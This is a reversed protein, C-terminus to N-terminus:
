EGEAVLGLAMNYLDRKAHGTKRAVLGAADKTSMDELADRLLSELQEAGYVRAEPPAIVLVIEGKPLGYERYYEVLETASGKRVEEYMKTLERTVAIVRDGLVREIDELSKLLRPAAEFAILSAQVGSWEQLVECRAASKPPLFGLFTFRDSPLGSLQLAMLPANAGPMSSVYIGAAAAANVLKYGPDSILPMGADSILVVVQGESVAGMLRDRVGADSHDNYPMLKGSIGYAALLKGSVRTDECAILDAAALVDLARLSIDRLNGIPTAVLYLGARFGRAKADPLLWGGEKKTIHECSDYDSMYLGYRSRGMCVILFQM